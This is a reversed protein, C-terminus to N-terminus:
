LYPVREVAHGPAEAPACESRLSGCFRAPWGSSAFEGFVLLRGDAVPERLRSHIDLVYLKQNGHNLPNM